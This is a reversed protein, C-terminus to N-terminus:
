GRTIQNIKKNPHANQPQKMAIEQHGNRRKGKLNKQTMEVPHKLTQNM